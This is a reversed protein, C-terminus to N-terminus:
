KGGADMVCKKVYSSKAAGALPKGDKGVAKAECSAKASAAADSKCKKLFSSKAAGALPKGDKGVAKAECDGGAMPATTGTDSKPAAAPAQALAATSLFLASIPAILKTM